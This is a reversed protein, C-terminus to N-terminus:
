SLTKMLLYPGTWFVMLWLEELLLILLRGHHADAEKLGLMRCQWIRPTTPTTANSGVGIVM